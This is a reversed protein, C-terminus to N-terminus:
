PAISAHIKAHNMRAALWAKQFRQAVESDEFIFQQDQIQWPHQQMIKFMRYCHTILDQQLSLVYKQQERRPRDLGLQTQLYQKADIGLDMKQLHKVLAEQRELDNQLYIRTLLQVQRLIQESQALQQKQDQQLRALDLFQHWSMEELERLYTHYAEIDQALYQLLVEGSHQYDADVSMPKIEFQIPQMWHLAQQQLTRIQTAIQAQADHHQQESGQGQHLFAAIALVGLASLGSFQLLKNM